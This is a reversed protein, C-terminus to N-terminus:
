SNMLLTLGLWVTINVIEFLNDDRFSNAISNMTNEQPSSSSGTTTGATASKLKAISAVSLPLTVKV